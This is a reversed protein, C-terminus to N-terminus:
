QKTNTVMEAMRKVPDLQLIVKALESETKQMPNVDARKMWSNSKRIQDAEAQLQNSKTDNDQLFAVKAQEELNKIKLATRMRPTVTHFMELPGKLGTAKRAREAM